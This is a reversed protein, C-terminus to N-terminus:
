CARFRWAAFVGVAARGAAFAFFVAVSSRGAVVVRRAGVGRRAAAAVAGLADERLGAVSAPAVLVVGARLLVLALVRAAGVPTRASPRLTSSRAAVAAFLPTARATFFVGRPLDVFFRQSPPALAAEGRAISPAAM